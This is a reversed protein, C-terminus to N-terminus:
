LMERRQLSRGRVPVRCDARPDAPHSSPGPLYDQCARRMAVSERDATASSAGCLHREGFSGFGALSDLHRPGPVHAGRRERLVTTAPAAGTHLWDNLTEIELRPASHLPGQLDGHHWPCRGSQRLPSDASRRTPSSRPTNSGRGSCQRSRRSRCGIINADPSTRYLAPGPSCLTRPVCMTRTEPHPRKPIRYAAHGRRPCRAMSCNCTTSPHDEPPHM